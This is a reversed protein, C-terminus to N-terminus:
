RRVELELEKYYFPVDGQHQGLSQRNQLGVHVLQHAVCLEILFSCRQRMRMVCGCTKVVSTETNLLCVERPFGRTIHHLFHNMIILPFNTLSIVMM